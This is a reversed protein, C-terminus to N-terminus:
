EPDKALRCYVEIDRFGGDATREGDREIGEFRFGLKKPINSSKVNGVACKIQVRNMGAEGFAYDCMKKVASTIIGRGQYQEGLWYGIETRLNTMDTDKFGITGAFKGDAIIAFVPEMRETSTGLVSRIFAESDDASKTCPVFPLWRGLYERQSDILAFMAPADSIEINRIIVGDNIEITM